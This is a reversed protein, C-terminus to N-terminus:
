KTLVAYGRAAAEPNKAGLIGRVVAVGAFGAAHLPVVDEPLVGGIAVCPRNRAAALVASAREMGLAEGANLKTATARFPGIGWYDAPAGRLVEEPSGVSAGIVMGAPAARRALAPALDDPGLHVGYARSAIAIDLRDNIFVPVPLEAVFRRALTLLERDGVAKLRLQVATVGGRVAALCPVLPDGAGLLRDDTVLLLRLITALNDSM